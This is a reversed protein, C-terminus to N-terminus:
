RSSLVFVNGDADEFVAATGWDANEPEGQFVVGRAKLAAYDAQVDRSWFTVGQMTGIREEHGDMTFLVLRTDAGPIGIEIWRQRDDFPQDTLVEFGLKDTYFALARDQDRVPISVFKVGQIV